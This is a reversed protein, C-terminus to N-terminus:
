CSISALAPLNIQTFVNSHMLSWKMSSGTWGHSNPFPRDSLNGTYTCPDSGEKLHSGSLVNEYELDPETDVM